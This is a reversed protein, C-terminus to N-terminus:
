LTVWFLAVWIIWWFFLAIFFISRTGRRMMDVIVAGFQHRDRAGAEVFKQGGFFVGVVQGGRDLAALADVFFAGDRGDDSARDTRALVGHEGPAPIVAHRLGIKGVAHVDGLRSDRAKFRGWYPGPATSRQFSDGLRKARRDVAEVRDVVARNSPRAFQDRFAGIRLGAANHAHLRSWAGRPRAIRVLEHHDRLRLEVAFASFDAALPDHTSGAGLLDFLLASTVPLVGQHVRPLLTQLRM